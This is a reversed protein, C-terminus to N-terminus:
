FLVPLQNQFPQSFRCTHIIQYLVTHPWLTTLVPLYPYNSVSCYWKIQYWIDTLVLSYPYNSISCHIDTYPWIDTVVLSYPYYSVSCHLALHRDSGFHTSLKICFLTLGITQWFWVTHVIQYLVTSTLTRGFPQWFWVTCIIHCLVRYLWIATKRVPWCWSAVAIGKPARSLSNVGFWDAPSLAWLRAVNAGTLKLSTMHLFLPM